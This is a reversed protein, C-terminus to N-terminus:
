QAFDSSPEKPAHSSRLSNEFELAFRDLLNKREKTASAARGPYLVKRILVHIRHRVLWRYRWLYAGSVPLTL